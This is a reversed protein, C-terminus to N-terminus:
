WLLLRLGPQLMELVETGRMGAQRCALLLYELLQGFQRWSHERRRAPVSSLQARERFQSPAGEAEFLSGGQEGAETRIVAECYSTRGASAGHFVRM